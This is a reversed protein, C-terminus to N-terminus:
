WLAQNESLTTQSIVLESNWASVGRTFMYIQQATNSAIAIYQNGNDDVTSGVFDGFSGSSVLEQELAM